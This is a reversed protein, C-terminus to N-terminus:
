KAESWPKEKTKRSISTAATTSVKAGRVIVTIHKEIIIEEVEGNINALVALDNDAPPPTVHTCSCLLLSIALAWLAVFALTWVAKWSPNPPTM